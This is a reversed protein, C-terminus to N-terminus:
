IINALLNWGFIVLFNYGAHFIICSYIEKNKLYLWSSVLGMVGQIPVAWYGYGHYYAFLLSSCLIITWLLDPFYRKALEIPMLRFFIEETVPAMIIAEWWLNWDTWSHIQPSTPYQSYVTKYILVIGVLWLQMFGIALLFNKLKSIM